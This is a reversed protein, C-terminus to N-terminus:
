LTDEKKLTDKKLSVHNQLRFLQKDFKNLNVYM